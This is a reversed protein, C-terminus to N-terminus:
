SGPPWGWPPLIALLIADETRPSAGALAVRLQERVRREPGSDLVPYKAPVLGLVRREATRVIGAATLAAAALGSGRPASWVEPTGDNRRLLLFLEEAILM